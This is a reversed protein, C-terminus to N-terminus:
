ETKKDNRLMCEIFIQKYNGKEKIVCTTWKKGEVHM